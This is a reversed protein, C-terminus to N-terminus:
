HWGALRATAERYTSRRIWLLQPVAPLTAARATSIWGRHPPSGRDGALMRCFAVSNNSRGSIDAFLYFAGEAPTLQEFGAGPM